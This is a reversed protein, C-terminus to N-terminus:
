IIWGQGTIKHLWPYFNPIYYTWVSNNDIYCTPPNALHQYMPLVSIGDIELEVELAEPHTRQIQIQIDIPDTLAVEHRFLQESDSIDTTWILGNIRIQSKVTGVPRARLVIDLKLTSKIDTAESFNKM